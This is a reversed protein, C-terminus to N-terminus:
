DDEEESDINLPFQQSYSEYTMSPDVPGSWQLFSNGHLGRLWSAAIFRSVPITKSAKAGQGEGM